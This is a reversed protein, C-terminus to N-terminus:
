CGNTLCVATIEQDLMGTVVGLVPSFAGAVFTIFGAGFKAAKCVDCQPGGSCDIEYRLAGVDAGEKNSVDISLTQPLWTWDEDEYIWGGICTDKGSKCPDWVQKTKTTEHKVLEANDAVGKLTDGMTKTLGPLNGHCFFRINCGGGTSKWSEDCSGDDGYSLLGYVDAANLNGSLKAFDKTTSIAIKTKDRNAPHPGDKHNCVYASRCKGAAGLLNKHYSWCTLAHADYTHTLQGARDPDNVNPHISATIVDGNGITATVGNERWPYSGDWPVQGYITRENVQTEEADIWVEGPYYFIWFDSAWEPHAPDNGIGCDALVINENENENYECYALSTFSLLITLLLSATTRLTMM